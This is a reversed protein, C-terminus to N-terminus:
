DRALGALAAAGRRQLVPRGQEWISAQQGLLPALRMHATAQQSSRLPGWCLSGRGVLPRLFSLAHAGITRGRTSSWPPQLASRRHGMSLQLPRGGCGGVEGSMM